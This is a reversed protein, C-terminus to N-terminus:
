LTEDIADIKKVILAMDDKLKEIKHELEKILNNGGKSKVSLFGINNEYTLLESKMRDYTRMLRERENYIKNKGSDNGAMDNLDHRFQQMRRDHQSIGLRDYQEDVAARYANYVKDKDKYPVHGISNWQAELDHLQEIAEDDPLNDLGKIKEIIEKKGALNSREGSRTSDLEKGRREFFYDCAANFRKWIADSQKRTVPGINKWEKQLAILKDATARWDTSDKLAEAQECLEKKKVFNQEMDAKMQKYFENKKDFFADCAARYREYVKVNQKKPAFGISKWKDQLAFVEKSKDDWDKYSKLESCDVKELEECVAIKAVLNEQEKARQEEFFHQHRRNILSSATKFRLWLEERLDRAVPGIERWQQHLKQLQHFASIVDPESDLKEVAECLATKLELNKRFDYDRYQNNIKIIDYFKESYFQYKKWLDNAHEQPVLKAERWKQQIEKFESYLKGFDEQSEVLSKLQEILQLKLAYNAERQQQEEALSLSRKEKYINLLEKLRAENSDEPVVFDKEEGGNGLFTKRADEVEEKRAKYYAQKLSEVETRSMEGSAGLVEQLRDLIEEKSLKNGPAAPAADPNIETVNAAEEPMVNENEMKGTEEVPVKEEFTDMM